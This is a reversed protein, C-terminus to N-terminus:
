LAGYECEADLLGAESKQRAIKLLQAAVDEDVFAERCGPCIRAPVDNVVLKFEDREFVVSTLGDVIEAKRCIICIM